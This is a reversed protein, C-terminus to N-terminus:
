PSAPAFRWQGGIIDFLGQGPTGTERVQPSIKVFDASFSCAVRGDAAPQCAGKRFNRVEGPVLCSSADPACIRACIDPPLGRGPVPSGTCLEAMERWPAHIDRLWQEVAVRMEAEGPEKDQAHLPTGAVCIIAVIAALWRLRLPRRV